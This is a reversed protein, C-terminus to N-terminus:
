FGPRMSFQWGGRRTSPKVYDIARGCFRSKARLAAGVSTVVTATVGPAGFRSNGGWAGGGCRLRWEVASSRLTTAVVIVLAARAKPNLIGVRSGIMRSRRSRDEAKM